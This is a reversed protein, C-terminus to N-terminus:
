AVVALRLGYIDTRELETQGKSFHPMLISACAAGSMM